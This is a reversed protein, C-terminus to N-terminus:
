LEQERWLGVFESISIIDVVVSEHIHAGLCSALEYKVENSFLEGLFQWWFVSNRILIFSCLFHSDWPCDPHCSRQKAWQYICNSFFWWDNCIWDDNCARQNYTAQNCWESHSKVSANILSSKYLSISKDVLQRMFVIESNIIEWNSLFLSM